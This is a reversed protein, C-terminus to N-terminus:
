SFLRQCTSHSQSQRVSTPSSLKIRRLTHVPSSPSTSIKVFTRLQLVMPGRPSETDKGKPAPSFPRHRSTCVKQFYCNSFKQLFSNFIKSSIKMDGPLYDSLISATTNEAFNSVPFHNRDLQWRTECFPIRKRLSRHSIKM